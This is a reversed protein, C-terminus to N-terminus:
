RSKPWAWHRLIVALPAGLAFWSLVDWLGDAFLASLLGVLSVIGLLVPTGFIRRFGAGSRPTSRRM